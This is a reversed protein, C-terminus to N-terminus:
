IDYMEDDDRADGLRSSHITFRHRDSSIILGGELTSQEGPIISIMADLETRPVVLWDAEERPGRNGRTTAGAWHLLAHCFHMDVM